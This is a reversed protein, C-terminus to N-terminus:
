GALIIAKDGIIQALNHVLQAANIDQRAHFMAKFQEITINETNRKILRKVMARGDQFEIVVYDRPRAPRDPHVFLTQGEEYKPEMSTGVLFIAYANEAGFLAAPREVYDVVNGNLEFFGSEGGVAVGLVPLDKTMHREFAHKEM